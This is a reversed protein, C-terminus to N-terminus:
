LFRWVAWITIIHSINDMVIVSWPGCPPNVFKDQGKWVMFRYIINTRDVIFHQIAIILLQPWSLHFFYFPIMYLMIHILCHFTSEKKQLAMWDNQLIYDGILHAIFLDFM